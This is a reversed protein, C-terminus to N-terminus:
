QRSAMQGLENSAPPNFGSSGPAAGPGKLASSVMMLEGVNELTLLGV